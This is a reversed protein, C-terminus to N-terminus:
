LGCLAKEVCVGCIDPCATRLEFVPSDYQFSRNLDAAAQPSQCTDDFALFTSSFMQSCFCLQKVYAFPRWSNKKGSFSYNVFFSSYPLLGFVSM